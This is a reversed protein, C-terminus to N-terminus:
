EDPAALIATIREFAVTWDDPETDEIYDTVAKIIAAQREVKAVLAPVDTRAHAIFEADQGQFTQAVEDAFDDPMVTSRVSGPWAQFTEADSWAWPGDTANEVRAKIADIDIDNM